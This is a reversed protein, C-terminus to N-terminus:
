IQIFCKSFKCSPGFLKSNNMSLRIWLKYLKDLSLLVHSSLSTRPFEERDADGQQQRSSYTWMHMKRWLHTTTMWISVFFLIIWVVDNYLDVLTVELMRDVPRMNHATERPVIKKRGFWGAVGLSCLSAPMHRHILPWNVFSFSIFAMLTWMSDQARAERRQAAAAEM